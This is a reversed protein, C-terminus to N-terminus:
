FSNTKLIARIHTNVNLGGVLAKVCYVNTDTLTYTKAQDPGTGAPWIFSVTGTAYTVSIANNSTSNASKLDFWGVEGTAADVMCRSDVSGLLELNIYNTSSASEPMVVITITDTQPGVNVINSTTTSVAGFNYTGATSTGTGLMNKITTITGAKADETPQRSLLVLYLGLVTLILGTGIILKNKM